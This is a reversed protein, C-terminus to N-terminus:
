VALIVLEPAGRAGLFFFGFLLVLLLLLLLPALAGPTELRHAPLVAIVVVVRAHCLALSRYTHVPRYQTCNTSYMQM